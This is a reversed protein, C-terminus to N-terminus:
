GLINQYLVRDEDKFVNFIVDIKKGMNEEQKKHFDYVTSVAIQCAEKNPFRFVGTSICCLAISEMGNEVAIELCSTYCKALLERHSVTLASNVIPGVTHIVKKSPLNFAETIKAHGTPEETIGQKAQEQMIEHCALRLPVGAFTHIFNDICAHGSIFCGLLASNAANVIADCALTTIDGQWLYINEKLPSLYKYHIIGRSTNYEKLFDTEIHIFEQSIPKPPRENVLGRYIRFKDKLRPLREGKSSKQALLGKEQLLYSILFDIREDQLTM